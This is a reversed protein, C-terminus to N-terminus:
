FEKWEGADVKKVGPSYPVAAAPRVRIPAPEMVAKAAELLSAATPAARPADGLRFRSVIGLLNNAQDKM